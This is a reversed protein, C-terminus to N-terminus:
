PAGARQEDTPQVEFAAAEPVLRWGGWRTVGLAVQLQARAAERVAVSRARLIAVSAAASEATAVDIGTRLGSDHLGRTQALHAQYTKVADEAVALQEEAALVGFFALAVQLSVDLESARVGVDSAAALEGAGRYGYLSHGWDWVTWSLGVQALWFSQ